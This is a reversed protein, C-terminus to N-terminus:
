SVNKWVGRKQEDFTRYEVDFYTTFSLICSVTWSCSSWCLNTQMHKLRFLFFINYFNLLLLALWNLFSYKPSIIFFRAAGDMVMQVASPTVYGAYRAMKGVNQVYWTNENTMILTDHVAWCQCKNVSNNKWFYSRTHTTRKPWCM